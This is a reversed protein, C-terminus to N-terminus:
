TGWGTTTAEVARGTRVRYIARILAPAAIFVVILAQIVLILDISLQTTVQMQQGGSRLAGFLLGAAVVGAPHSRGLLALAIADFGTTGAFAPSGRYLVGLLRDSGALGGLAGSIAMVAVYIWVVRMGAYHAGDPNLGVARFEYGITTRFLLWYVGYAVLLAVVIGLHVRLEPRGLVGLLRPLQATTEVTKSIPDTRGPAQFLPTKLLYDVLRLAILNLMITTIVEHAGTRARLLGPIAGWLAGGVAGALLALPLHIVAPLSFSFGVLLACLGGVHMQGNVGINFLGARFGLAVALGALILTASNTLTESLARASGLSGAVLAQYARVILSTTRSIARGPQSFWLRLSELDTLAIIFAGVILATLLALLPVLIATRWGVGIGALEGLLGRGTPRTEEVGAREEGPDSPTRDDEPRDSV